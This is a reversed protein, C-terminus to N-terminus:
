RFSVLVNRKLDLCWSDMKRDLREMEPDVLNPQINSTGSEEGRAGGVIIDPNLREHSRPLQESLSIMGPQNSDYSSGPLPSPDNLDCSRLPQDCSRSGGQTPTAVRPSLMPQDRHATMATFPPPPRFSPPPAGGTSPLMSHSQHLNSPDPPRELTYASSALPRGAPADEMSVTSNDSNVVKVAFCFIAVTFSNCCPRTYM